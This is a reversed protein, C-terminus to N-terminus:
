VIVFEVICEIGFLMGGGCIRFDLVWDWCEFEFLELFVFGIFLKMVFIKFIM